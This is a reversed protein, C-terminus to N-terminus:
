KSGATTASPQIKVPALLLLGLVFYAALVLVSVRMSGTLTDLFGFSFTGLVIAVKELVDYFSFFSTTDPTDTPLLKSYTSRSLAQIGGMVTGVAVAVLYFQVATEVFYAVICIAIWILLMVVLSFKNGKLKSIHAFLYAGAIAIIQLLLVLVILASTDFHLEKEAFTAALFIVTQVGASYFFFAALFSTLNPMSKAISAVHRLEQIGKSLVSSTFPLRPSDPLIRFPIMSFGFWWLGVMLFAIRVALTGTEPLGFWTPKQIILLNLVLLLVSGFYGMAYGKASVKDYQDPSAIEPLYANYFVLGGAFGVLALIFAGLGLALQQMGQFFFLLTCSLAGLWTFFKLFGKKQGGYDAIGSLLPSALAILLYSASIAYAYLSSNSLTIGGLTIEPDTVALFYAPFIATTIVLAYASNAWDFFTWARIIRPSNLPVQHQSMITEPTKLRECPVRSEDM